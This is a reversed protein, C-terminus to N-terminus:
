AKPTGPKFLVRIRTHRRRGTLRSNRLQPDDELLLPLVVLPNFNRANM